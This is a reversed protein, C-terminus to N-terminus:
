GLKSKAEIRFEISFGCSNTKKNQGEKKQTESKQSEVKQSKEKQTEWKPKREKKTNGKHTAGKQKDGKQTKRKRTKRKQREKTKSQREKTTDRITDRYSLTGTWIDRPKDTWWTKLESFILLHFCCCCCCRCRWRCCCCCCCCLNITFSLGRWLTHHPPACMFFLAPYVASSNCAIPLSCPATVGSLWIYRGVTM